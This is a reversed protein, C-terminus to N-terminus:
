VKICHMKHQLQLCKLQTPIRDAANSTQLQGGESGKTGQKQVVIVNRTDIAQRPKGVQLNRKHEPMSDSFATPSSKSVPCLCSHEAAKM